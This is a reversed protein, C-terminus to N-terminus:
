RKARVARAAKKAAGARATLTKRKKRKSLSEWEYLVPSAIFISSYTGVIVGVMIAFAFDHVVEGGLAFLALVVVFTTFSTLITRSLTQNISTDLQHALDSGRMGKLNERIRDFVVITDNLSYGVITLLAAIITLSIEKNFLSFLGVTITVDHILAIIAAVAFRFRFRASIYILIGLMAWFISLIAKSRLDKGVKPGVMEQRVVIFNSTYARQKLAEVIEPTMGPISALAQLSPLLGARRAREDVIKQALEKARALDGELPKLSALFETLEKLGAKNLDLADEPVKAPQMRTRIASIIRAGVNREQVKAERAAKVRILVENPAGFQQLRADTFGERALTERLVSIDVPRSFKLQILTGGEFDISYSPGGKVILSALGALIMILSCLFAVKRFRIFRFKAGVLLEM